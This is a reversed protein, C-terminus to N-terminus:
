ASIPGARAPLCTTQSFGSSIVVSRASRMMSAVPEAPTRRAITSGSRNSAAELATRRATVARVPEAAEHQGAGM